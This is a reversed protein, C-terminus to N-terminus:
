NEKLSKLAIQKLEQIKAGVDKCPISEAKITASASFVTVTVEVSTTCEIDINSGEIQKSDFENFDKLNNFSITVKSKQNKISETITIKGNFTDSNTPTNAFAFTGILVFLLSFFLTKM